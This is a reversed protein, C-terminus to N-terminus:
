DSIEEIWYKGNETNPEHNGEDVMIYRKSGTVSTKKELGSNKMEKAVFDDDENDNFHPNEKYLDENLAGTEQNFVLGNDHLEKNEDEEKDEDDEDDKYRDDDKSERDDYRDDDNKSERDKADEPSDEVKDGDEEKSERSDSDGDGYKRSETDGDGYKRSKSDSDEFREDKTDADDQNESDIEERNERDGGYQNNRNLSEQEVVNLESKNEDNENSGGNVIGRLEKIDHTNEDNENNGGLEKIDHNNEDNEANRYSEFDDENETADDNSYYKTIEPKTNSKKLHKNFHRHHISHKKFHKHRKHKIHHKNNGISISTKKKGNESKSPAKGYYYEAIYPGITAYKVHTESIRKRKNRLKSKNRGKTEFHRNKKFGFNTKKDVIEPDLEFGISSLSKGFKPNINRKKGNPISSRIAGDKMFSEEDLSFKPGFYTNLSTIKNIEEGLKLDGQVRENEESEQADFVSKAIAMDHYNPSDVEDITLSKKAHNRTEKKHHLLTKCSQVFLFLLFFSSWISYM